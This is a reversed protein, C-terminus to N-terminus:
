QQPVALQGDHWLQPTLSKWPVQVLTGGPPASGVPVQLADSTDVQPFLPRQSPLPLQWSQGFVVAQMLTQAVSPDDSVCFKQSPMPVQVVVSTTV